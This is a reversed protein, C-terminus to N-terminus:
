RKRVKIVYYPPTMLYGDSEVKEYIRKAEEKMAMRFDKSYPLQDMYENMIRLWESMAAEYKESKKGSFKKEDIVEFDLLSLAYELEDPEIETSWVEGNLGCIGKAFNWRLWQGEEKNKLPLETVIVLIGGPKLVRKFESLAQLVKLPKSNLFVLTDDCNIIDISGDELFNLNFIDGKRIEVYKKLNGLREEIERKWDEENEGPIDFTDVAIIKSTGGEGEIREAWLKTAYGAGVAADLIIKNKLDIDKLAFEYIENM